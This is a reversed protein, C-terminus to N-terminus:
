PFGEGFKMVSVWKGDVHVMGASSENLLALVAAHAADPPGKAEGYYRIHKRIPTTQGFAVEPRNLWTMKIGCTGNGVPVLCRREICRRGRHRGETILHDMIPDSAYLWAKSRLQKGAAEEEHHQRQRRLLQLM